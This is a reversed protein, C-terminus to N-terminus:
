FIRMTYNTSPPDLQSWAQDSTAPPTQGTRGRLFASTAALGVLLLIVIVLGFIEM